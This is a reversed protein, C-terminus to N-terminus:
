KAAAGSEGHAGRGSQMLERVPPFRRSNAARANDCRLGLYGIILSAPREKPKAVPAIERESAPDLVDIPRADDARAVPTTSPVTVSEVRCGSPEAVILM